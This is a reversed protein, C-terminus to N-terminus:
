SYHSGTRNCHSGSRVEHRTAKQKEVATRASVDRGAYLIPCPPTGAAGGAAGGCAEGSRSIRHRVGCVGTIPPRDAGICRAGSDGTYVSCVAPTLLVTVCQAAAATSGVGLRRGKRQARERGRACGIPPAVFGLGEGGRDDGDDGGQAEGDEPEPPPRAPPPGECAARAARPERERAARGGHQRVLPEMLRLLLPPRVRRLYYARLRKYRARADRKYVRAHVAPM